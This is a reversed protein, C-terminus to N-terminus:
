LQPILYNELMESNVPSEYFYPGILASSTVGAWMIVHPLHHELTLSFNPNEKARIVVYRSRSSRYIACKDRLLVKSRSEDDPFNDLLAGCADYRREYDVDLLENAFRARYPKLLLDRRTYDHPTSRPVGLKAAQKRISKQPSRDVSFAAKARTEDRSSRRGSRPRDLASELEFARKEWDLLTAKRPAAKQFRETFMNMIGSM